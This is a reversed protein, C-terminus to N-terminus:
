ECIAPVGAAASGFTGKAALYQAEFGWSKVLGNAEKEIDCPSRGQRTRVHDLVRHALEHLIVGEIAEEAGRDELEASLKILMFGDQFSPADGPTSSIESSNAFRGVGTYHYETFLVPRSRETVKLFADWPIKSLAHTIASYTKPLGQVIGQSCYEGLYERVVEERDNVAWDMLVNEILHFTVTSPGEGPPGDFTIWEETGETRYTRAKEKPYVAQFEEQNMGSSIGDLVPEEAWAPQFYGMGLTGALFIVRVANM